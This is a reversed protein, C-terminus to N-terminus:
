RGFRWGVKPKEVCCTLGRQNCLAKYGQSGTGAQEWWDFTCSFPDSRSHQFSPPLHPPSAAIFRLKPHVRWIIAINHILVRLYLEGYQTQQSRARLASGFRRKDQSFCSEVQWRQGYCQKPFELAMIRRWYGQPLKGSRRGRKPPIISVVDLEERLFRHAKESDYGADALLTKFPQRSLAQMVAEVFEIDDPLPGYDAVAGLYLHSATDCVATLKPYRSKKLGCRKSYYVSTHGSEYGTSDIAVQDSHDKIIGKDRALNM